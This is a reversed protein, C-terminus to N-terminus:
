GRPRSTGRPRASAESPRASRARSRTGLDMKLLRDKLEHLDVPEGPVLPGVSVVGRVSLLTAFIVEVATPSLGKKFLVVAGRPTPIKKPKALHNM